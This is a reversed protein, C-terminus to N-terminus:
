GPTAAADAKAKAAADAEAKAAADAKAKAAADAKAKAAADAEAKAAADAEAKAAANAKAKAAADAEAKAKTDAAAKAKAKTDAAAKAKAEDYPAAFVVVNSLYSKANRDFEGGCTVLRLSPTGDGKYVRETPFDRKAFSEVSQVEFVGLSGDSRRISILQGPTMTELQHFIGPGRYSDVHGVIVAPGDGGPAFGQSYWGAQQADDPVQLAGSREKRLGILRTKVGLSPIAIRVPPAVGNDVAAVPVVRGIGRDAALDAQVGMLVSGNVALIGALAAAAVAPARWRRRGASPSRSPSGGPPTASRGGGAGFEAARQQAVAAAAARRRDIDRRPARAAPPSSTRVGPRWSEREAPGHTPPNM